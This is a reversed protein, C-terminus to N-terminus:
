PSTFDLVFSTPVVGLTDPSLASQIQVVYEGAPLPAGGTYQITAGSALVAGQSTPGALLHMTVDGFSTVDLTIATPAGLIFYFYSAYTPVPDAVVHSFYVPFIRQTFGTGFALPGGVDSLRANDLNGPDDLMFAGEFAGDKFAGFTTWAPMFRRLRGDQVRGVEAHYEADTMRFPQECEIAVFHCTSGWQGDGFIAVGGAPHGGSGPIVNVPAHNIARSSDTHVLGVFTNPLMEQLFAHLGGLGCRRGFMAWRDALARRRANKSAGVPPSIRFIREWRELFTTTRLPDFQNRFRQITEGAEWIARATAHAKAWVKSGTGTDYATGLQSLLSNTIAELSRGRSSGTRFPGPGYTGTTM